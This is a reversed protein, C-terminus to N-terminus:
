FQFIGKCFASVNGLFSFHSQLIRQCKGFCFFAKAILLFLKRKKTEMRNEKVEILM